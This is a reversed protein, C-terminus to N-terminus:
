YITRRLFIRLLSLVGTKQATYKITLMMKYCRSAIIVNHQEMQKNLYDIQQRLHLNEELPSERAQIKKISRYVDLHNGHLSACIIEALERLHGLGEHEINSSAKWLWAFAGFIENVDDKSLESKLLQAFSYSLYADACKGFFAKLCHEDLLKFYVKFAESMGLFYQKTYTFSISGPHRTYKYVPKDIYIACKSFLLYNMLFVTDSAPVGELFSINEQQILAIKYIGRSFGSAPIFANFDAPFNYIKGDEYLQSNLGIKESIINGEIDMDSIYGFAFDVDASEITDYLLRCADDTFEDDADLFMCYKAKAMNLAPNRPAGDSGSNHPLRESEINTYTDTFNQVIEWTRDTSCDDVIIVQINEFGITQRRLSEIAKPLFKEANYVPIIVSVKYNM